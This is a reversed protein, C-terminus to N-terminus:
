FISWIEFDAVTGSLSFIVETYQLSLTLLSFLKKQQFEHKQLPLGWYAFLLSTLLKQLQPLAPPNKKLQIQLSFTDIHQSSIENRM